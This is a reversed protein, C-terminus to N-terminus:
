ILEVLVELDGAGNSLEVTAVNGAERLDAEAARIRSLHDDRGRIRVVSVAAKMSQKAETKARRIAALVASAADLIAPDGAGADVTSPWPAHHVSGEQWWSWVEETVFPVIPAFLRQLVGLALRLTARASDADPGNGYARGKVLELYDDCFGWFFSETRELARAYDYAEFAETAASILENLRALLSLDLPQSPTSGEGLGLTFKSANLIKIALRRGVRFQNPDLATDMGPRGNCAWYRIADPGHEDILAMPTVVNGVSKSMKKRDPDLIWGNINTHAWPLVGHEFESRVVTDFLWTRIIEPGQPRLDLPFTRGFLDADDEWGCVIQPTLSSTAWTDMVDPDGVFGRPQGRQAADYGSPVDSSPDIPLAEEDPAIPHDYDVTGDADIPYWLPFPVGFFRQRSILWDGNLGDLWSEYRQHMWGPHWALDNGRATFRARLAPDRGGNRIYWQRSTVIELPREGREYFKVPHTIPTPEGDLEGADRLLQVILGQAQKVTQGAITEYAARGDASTIWDPTDSQLRGNRGIISRVPLDLERWWVVDATDGFTCVMAM